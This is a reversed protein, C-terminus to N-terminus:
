SRGKVPVMRKDICTFEFGILKEVQANLFNIFSQIKYLKDTCNKPIATNEDCHLFM